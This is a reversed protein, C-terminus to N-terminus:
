CLAGLRALTDNASRKSVLTLEARLAGALELALDQLQQRTLGM